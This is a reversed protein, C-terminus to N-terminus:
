PDGFVTSPQEAVSSTQSKMLPEAEATDVMALLVDPVEQQQVGDAVELGLGLDNQIYLASVTDSVAVAVIAVIATKASFINIRM